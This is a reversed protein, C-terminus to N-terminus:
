VPQTHPVLRITRDAIAHEEVVTQVSSTTRRVATRLSSMNFRADKAKGQSIVKRNVLGDLDLSDSIRVITAPISAVSFPHSVHPFLPTLVTAFYM